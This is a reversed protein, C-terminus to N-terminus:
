VAHICHKLKNSRIETIEPTVHEEPYSMKDYQGKFQIEWESVKVFFLEVTKRINLAQQKCIRDWMMNNRHM